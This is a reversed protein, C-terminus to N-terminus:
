ETPPGTAFFLSNKKELVSHVRMRLLEFLVAYTGVGSSNPRDSGFVCAKKWFNPENPGPEVLRPTAVLADSRASPTLRHEALVGRHLAMGSLVGKNWRM